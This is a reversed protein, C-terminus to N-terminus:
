KVVGEGVLDQDPNSFRPNEYPGLVAYKDSLGLPIGSDVCYKEDIGLGLPFRRSQRTAKFLQDSKASVIEFYYQLKEKRVGLGAHVGVLTKGANLIVGPLNSYSAEVEEPITSASAHIAVRELNDATMYSKFGGWLGGLRYGQLVQQRATLGIAMLKGSQLILEASRASTNHYYLEMEDDIGAEKLGSNYLGIALRTTNANLDVETKRDEPVLSLLYERFTTFGQVTSGFVEACEKAREVIEDMSHVDGYEQTLKLNGTYSENEM